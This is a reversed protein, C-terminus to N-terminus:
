VRPIVLRRRRWWRGTYIADRYAINIQPQHWRNPPLKGQELQEIQYPQWFYMSTVIYYCDHAYQNNRYDSYRNVFPCSNHSKVFFNKWKDIPTPGRMYKRDLTIIDYYGNVRTAPTVHFWWKYRYRKIYTRTFFLWVKLSNVGFKKWLDFSW